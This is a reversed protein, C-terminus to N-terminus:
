VSGPPKFVFMQIPLKGNALEGAATQSRLYKDAAIQDPLSHDESLLGDTMTKRPAAASTEIDDTLDAM